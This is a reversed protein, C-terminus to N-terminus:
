WVDGPRWECVIPGSLAFPPTRRTRLVMIGGDDDPTREVGASTRVFTPGLWREWGLREYFRHADTSLAGVEYGAQILEGVREMVTTGHGRGWARPDTAVAEVYGADVRRSEVELLRPVLAGHAVIRGDVLALIHTGGTAHRWDEEEFRGGKAAWAAAFLARLEAIGAPDLDSTPVERITTRPVESASGSTL